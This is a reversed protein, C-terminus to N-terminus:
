EIRMCLYIHIKRVAQLDYHLLTQERECHSVSMMSSLAEEVQQCPRKLTHVFDEALLLFFAVVQTPSAIYLSVCLDNVPSFRLARKRERRQTHRDFQSEQFLTLNVATGSGTCVNTVPVRINCSGIFKCNLWIGYAVVEGETKASTFYFTHEVHRWAVKMVEPLSRDDSM